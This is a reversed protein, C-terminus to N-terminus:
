AMLLGNVFNYTTGGIVKSGTFLGTVSSVTGDTTALVGNMYTSANLVIAGNQRITLIRSSAGNYIQLGGDDAIFIKWNIGALDDRSLIAIWPGASNTALRIAYDKGGLQVNVALSSLTGNSGSQIAGIDSLSWTKDASGDFTNAKSGITLTRPTALKTATAANGACEEASTAAGGPTSSGAYNHTHSTQSYGSAAVGGLKSSDAATGSTTLYSGAPQKGAILTRIDAHSDTATNHASVAAAATGAPDAGVEAPTTPIPPITPISACASWVATANIGSTVRYECASATVYATDGPHVGRTCSPLLYIGDLAAVDAVTGHHVPASTIEMAAGTWHYVRGDTTRILEHPRITVQGSSALAALSALNGPKEWRGLVVPSATPTDSM